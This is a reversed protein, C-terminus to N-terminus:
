RHKHGAWEPLDAIRMIAGIPPAVRRRPTYARQREPAFIEMVGLVQGIKTFVGKGTLVGNRAIAVCRRPAVAKLRFAGAVLTAAIVGLPV